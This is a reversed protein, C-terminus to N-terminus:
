ESDSSEFLSETDAAGRIFFGQRHQGRSNTTLLSQSKSKSKSGAVPMSPAGDGSEENTDSDALLDATNSPKRTSGRKAFSFDEDEDEDEDEDYSDDVNSRFASNAPRSLSVDSEDDDTTTFPDDRMFEMSSDSLDLDTDDTQLDLSHKNQPSKAVDQHDRQNNSDDENDKDLLQDDESSDHLLDDIEAKSAMVAPQEPSPEDPLRATRKQKSLMAAVALPAAKPVTVTCISPDATAAELIEDPTGATRASFFVKFVQNEDQVVHLLAQLVFDYDGGRALNDFHDLILWVCPVRAEACCKLFLDWLDHIDDQVDQFYELTFPFVKRVYHKHRQELLQMILSQLMVAPTSVQSSTPHNGCLHYLVVMNDVKAAYEIIRTAFATAWDSPGARKVTNVWILGSSSAQLWARMRDNRLLSMIQHLDQTTMHRLRVNTEAHDNDLKQLHVFCKDRFRKLRKPKTIHDALFSASTPALVHTEESKGPPRRSGKGPNSAAETMSEAYELAALKPGTSILKREEATDLGAQRHISQIMIQEFRSIWNRDFTQFLSQVEDRMELKLQERLEVTNRRMEHRIKEQSGWLTEVMQHTQVTMGFHGASAIDKIRKFAAEIKNVLVQFRTEWPFGFAKIASMMKSEKYYKVAKALFKSFAAYAECVAEVMKETPHSNMLHNVVGFDQGFQIIYHEVAHNLKSHNTRAVLLM